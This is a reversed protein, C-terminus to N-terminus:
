YKASDVCSDVERCVDYHSKLKIVDSFVVMMVFSGSPYGKISTDSFQKWIYPQSANQENWVNEFHHLNNDVHIHFNFKEVLQLM